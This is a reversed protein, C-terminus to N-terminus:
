FITRWSYRGGEILSLKKRAIDAATVALAQDQRAAEAQLRERAGLLTDALAKEAKLGPAETFLGKVTALLGTESAPRLRSELAHRRM